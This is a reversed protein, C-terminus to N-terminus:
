RPPTPHCGCPKQKKPRAIRNRAKETEVGKRSAQAAVELIMKQQEALEEQLSLIRENLNHLM